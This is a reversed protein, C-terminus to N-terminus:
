KMTVPARLPKARRHHLHTQVGAPTWLILLLSEHNLTIQDHKDNFYFADSLQVCTHSLTYLDNAEKAAEFAKQAFVM